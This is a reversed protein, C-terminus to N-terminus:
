VSVWIRRKGTTPEIARKHYRSALQEDSDVFWGTLAQEAPSAWLQVCAEPQGACFNHLASLLNPGQWQRSPPVPADPPLEPAPPDAAVPPVPPTAALPPLPPTAALPPMPPTAALPPMPPTAALPPVAPDGLPPLPPAGASAPQSAPWTFQAPFHPLKGSGQPPM